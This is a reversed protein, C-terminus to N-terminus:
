NEMVRDTPDDDSDDQMNQHSAEVAAVQRTEWRQRARELVAHAIKANPTPAPVTQFKRVNSARTVRCYAQYDPLNMLDDVTPFNETKFEWEGFLPAYETGYMPDVYVKKTLETLVDATLGQSQLVQLMGLLYQAYPDNTRKSWPPAIAMLKKNVHAIAVAMFESMPGQMTTARKRCLVRKGRLQRCMVTADGETQTRFSVQINVNGFIRERLDRPVQILVQHYLHLLLKYKRSEALIEGLTDSASVYNQFEDIHLYFPRREDEPISDRALAAQQIGVVTLAGILKLAERGSEGKSLKLLLIKGQNMLSSFDLDNELQSFMAEMPSGPLLFTSLKNVIPQTASEPMNDFENRWFRQMQADQVRGIIRSRFRSDTLLSHLSRLSHPENDTLLTMLSYRLLHVMRDGWSDFFMKFTAILDDTLKAPHYPLRLINFAPAHPSGPDFMVVDDLRHEPVCGILAQIADGNPDIYGVGKGRKMDQATMYRAWNTKGSGSAGIAYLHRSRADDSFFLDM